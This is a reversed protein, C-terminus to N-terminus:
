SKEASPLLQTFIITPFDPCPRGAPTTQSIRVCGFPSCPSTLPKFIRSKQRVDKTSPGWLGKQGPEDSEFPYLSENRALFLCMSLDVIEICSNSQLKFSM